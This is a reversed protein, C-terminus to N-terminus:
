QLNKELEDTESDEKGEPFGMMKYARWLLGARDIAVLFNLRSPLFINSPPAMPVSTPWSQGMM